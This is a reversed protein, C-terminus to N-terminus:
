PENLFELARYCSACPKTGWYKDFSKVKYVWSLIQEESTPNNVTGDVCSLDTPSPAKEDRAGFSHFQRRISILYNFKKKKKTM